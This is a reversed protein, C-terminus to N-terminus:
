QVDDDEKNVADAEEAKIANELKVTGIDVISNDLYDFLTQYKMLQIQLYHNSEDHYAILYNIAEM